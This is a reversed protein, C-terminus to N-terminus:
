LHHVLVLDLLLITLQILVLSLGDILMGGGVGLLAVCVILGIRGLVVELSVMSGINKGVTDFLVVLKGFVM